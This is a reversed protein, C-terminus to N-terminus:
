AVISYFIVVQVRSLRFFMTRRLIYSKFYASYPALRAVALLSWVSVPRVQDHSARNHM